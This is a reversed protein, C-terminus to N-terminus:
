NKSVENEICERIITKLEDEIKISPDSQSKRIIGLSKKFAIKENEKFKFDNLIKDIKSTESM